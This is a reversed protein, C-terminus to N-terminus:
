NYHHTENQFFSNQMLNEEDTGLETLYEELDEIGITNKDAYQNFIASLCDTTYRRSYIKKSQIFYKAEKKDGDMRGSEILLKSKSSGYLNFTRDRFHKLSTVAKKLVYMPLIKDSRVFRYQYYSDVFKGFVLAFLAEFIYFPAFFPLTPQMDTHDEIYVIEGLERADAGLSEPRQLDAFIKVFVRNSIVCAHRSMKVLANFLDNKQNCEDANAKVTMLEPSNKREKDIESIIYVGFGFAYRKPNDEIMRKGLRLMDFDLIHAHRSYSDILKTDREFFDTNWKPFNGLDEYLNDVRISYNAILLSSQVTYVLYACAYDEIVEWIDWVKLKDDFELGYREYDYDFINEKSPYEYFLHAKERVWERATPVSYIYHEEIEKKMEQEFTAWNFYPFKFDSEIIIEFAMDRFKVEQSLAMDTVTKTKGAGMPGYVITMVGREDLFGKNRAERHDLENKGIARAILEITLIIIVAWIAGPIFRVVPALDITLKYAQRYIGLVDFTVVFYLYFAFFEIVIAIFNFYLAWLWLWIIHWFANEKCFEVYERLWRKIPIYTKDAIRKARQLARSEVDYDNNEENLYKDIIIKLLLLLPMLILLGQSGYYLVDGVVYMYDSFTEAEFFVEWYKDWVAVFEEWTFPLIKLREFRSPVFEWKPLDMVTPYIANEDFWLECFYFCLSSGFNRITEAVRLVSNPFIFIGLALFGLTIVFNIYHRYDLSKLYEITKKLNIRKMDYRRVTFM